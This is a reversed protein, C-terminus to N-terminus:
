WSLSAQPEDIAKKQAPSLISLWYAMFHSLHLTQMGLNWIEGAERKFPPFYQRIQFLLDYKM